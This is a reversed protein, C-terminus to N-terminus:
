VLEIRRSFPSSRKIPYCAFVNRLTVSFELQSLHKISSVGPRSLEFLVFAVPSFVLHRLIFWKQLSTFVDNSAPHPPPTALLTLPEQHTGLSATDLCKAVSPRQSAKNSGCHSGYGWRLCGPVTMCGGREAPYICGHLEMATAKRPAYPWAPGRGGVAGRDRGKGSCPIYSWAGEYRRTYTHDHLQAKITLYPWSVIDISNDDHLKFPEHPCVTTCHPRLPVYSWADGGGQHLMTPLAKSARPAVAMCWYWGRPTLPLTPPPLVSDHMRLMGFLYPRM